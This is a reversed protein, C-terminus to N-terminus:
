MATYIYKYMNSSQWEVDGPDLSWANRRKSAAVTGGCPCVDLGRHKDMQFVNFRLMGALPKGEVFNVYGM